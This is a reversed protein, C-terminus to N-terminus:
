AAPDRCQHQRHRCQPQAPSQMFKRVLRNALYVEKANHQRDAETHQIIVGGCERKAAVNHHTAFPEAIGLHLLQHPMFQHMHTLPMGGVQEQASQRPYYQPEVGEHPEILALHFTHVLVDGVALHKLRLLACLVGFKEVMLHAPM